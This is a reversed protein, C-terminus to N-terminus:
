ATEAIHELLLVAYAASWADNAFPLLRVDAVVAPGRTAAVRVLDRSADVGLAGHHQLLRGDGCGLDLTSNIGVGELLETLLPDVDSGYAPDDVVEELWWGAIPEDWNM